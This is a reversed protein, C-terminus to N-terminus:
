WLCRCPLKVHVCGSNSPNGDDCAEYGDEGEARDQRHLGDGCFATSCNSTCADTDVANGDDCSEGDQVAMAAVPQAQVTCTDEPNDNGDDCGESSSLIGDGCREIACGNTCSDTNDRNGDDCEEYGAEDPARDNRVIGDGCSAAICQSTCADGDENNGDDCEEPAITM